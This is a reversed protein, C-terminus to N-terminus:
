KGTMAMNITELAQRLPKVEIQGPASAEGIMGFTLDSGWVQGTIRTVAGLGGMSMTLLPKRSYRERIQATADQLKLVDGANHPMVAIKLIDAGMEDQKRLRSVIEATDPTKNFDHSSMVVKIGAEHAAAVVKQVVAPQRFMEVDLIDIFHSKILALYLDGWAQDTIVKAGGEAKTRFTLILPKGKVEAVIKKGLAAVQAPDNAFNLYDIRYEILDADPNEGIMKAQALVQEATAGTTPVIIKPAGQGILTNNIKLPVAHRQTFAAAAQSTSAAHAQSLAVVGSQTGLLLSVAIVMKRLNM